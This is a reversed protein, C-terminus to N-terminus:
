QVITSWLIQSLACLTVNLDHCCHQPRCACYGVLCLSYFSWGNQREMIYVIEPCWVLVSKTTAAIMNTRLTHTLHTHTHTHTPQNTCTCNPQTTQFIQILQLWRCSMRDEQAICVCRSAALVLDTLRKWARFHHVYHFSM